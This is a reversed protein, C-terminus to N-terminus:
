GYFMNRLLRGAFLVALVTLLATIVLLVINLLKPERNKLALIQFVFSTIDTTFCVLPMLLVAFISIVTLIEELIGTVPVTELFLIDLAILAIYGMQIVLCIIAVITMPMKRKPIQM